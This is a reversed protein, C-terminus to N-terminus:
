VFIPFWHDFHPSLISFDPKWTTKFARQGIRSIGPWETRTQVWFKRWLSNKLRLPSRQVWCENSFPKLNQNMRAATTVLEKSLSILTHSSSQRKEDRRRGYQEHVSGFGVPKSQQRKKATAAALATGPRAHSIFTRIEGEELNSFDLLRIHKARYQCRSCVVAGRRTGHRAM